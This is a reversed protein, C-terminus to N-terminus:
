IQVFQEVTLTYVVAGGVEAEIMVPQVQLMSADLRAPIFQRHVHCCNRILSLLKPLVAGSLGILLCWTPEELLSGWSDLQTFYFGETRLLQTLDSAQGGSVVVIVLQDIEDDAM